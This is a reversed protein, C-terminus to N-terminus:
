VIKDGAVLVQEYWAQDLKHAPKAWGFAKQQFLPKGDGGKPGTMPLANVNMRTSAVNARLRMIPHFKSIPVWPKTSYLAPQGMGFTTMEAQGLLPGRIEKLLERSEMAGKGAEQPSSSLSATAATELAMAEGLKDGVKRYLIAARTAARGGEAYKGMLLFAGASTHLLAAECEKDGVQWTLRVAETCVRVAERCEGYWMKADALVQMARIQGKVDSKAKFLGVAKKAAAKADELEEMRLKVEATLLSEIAPEQASAEKLVAEGLGKETRERANKLLDSLDDTGPM